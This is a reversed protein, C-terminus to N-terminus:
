RDQSNEKTYELLDPLETEFDVDPNRFCTMTFQVSNFDSHILTISEGFSEIFAQTLRFQSHLLIRVPLTEPADPHSHGPEDRHKREFDLLYKLRRLVFSWSLPSRYAIYFPEETSKSLRKSKQLLSDIRTPLEAKFGLSATVEDVLSPHIILCWGNSAVFAFKNTRKGYQAELREAVSDSRSYVVTGNVRSKEFPFKQNLYGSQSANEAYWEADSQDNFKLCKLETTRGDSENQIRCVWYKRGMRTYLEEFSYSNKYKLQLEDIDATAPEDNKILEIDEVLQDYVNDFPLSIAEIEEIDWNDLTFRPFQTPEPMRLVQLLGDRPLTTRIAGKIVIEPQSEQDENNDGNSIFIHAGAGAIKTTLGRCIVPEYFEPLIRDYSLLSEIETVKQLMTPNCYFSIDPERLGSSLKNMTSVFMRNEFFTRKPKSAIFELVRNALQESSSLVLKKGVVTAFLERAFMDENSLIELRHIKEKSGSSSGADSWQQNDSFQIPVEMAVCIREILSKFELLKDLLAEEDSVDEPSCILIFEFRNNLAYGAITIDSDGLLSKITSHFEQSWVKDVEEVDAETSEVHEVLRDLDAFLDTIADNSVFESVQNINKISSTHLYFLANDPLLKADRYRDNYEFANYEFANYEFANTTAGFFLHFCLVSLVLTFCLGSNRDNM